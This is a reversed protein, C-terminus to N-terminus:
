SEPVVVYVSDGDVETAYSRLAEVAPFCLARGDRVDFRAMHLVCTVEFGEM